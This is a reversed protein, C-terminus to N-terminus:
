CSNVIVTVEEPRVMRVNSIKNGTLFDQGFTRMEVDAVAASRGKSYYVALGLAESLDGSQTNTSNANRLLIMAGPCSVTQFALDGERMLSDLLLNEGHDRGSVIHAGESSALHRGVLLLKIDEATFDPNYDKLFALKRCFEKETLHCGGAPSGTKTINYKKQLSFQDKRGRGKISPFKSNDVWGEREPLTPELYAASLPKLHIDKLESVKDTLEMARRTQSMPRQGLVEGSILFDAGIEKRFNDARVIMNIRCDLCPNLNKGFGHKPSKIMAIMDDTSNEVHLPIGLEEAAKVVESNAKGEFTGGSFLNSLHFGVVEVGQEKIVCVALSSDLGGSFM